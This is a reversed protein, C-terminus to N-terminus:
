VQLDGFSQMNLSLESRDDRRIRSGCTSCANLAESCYIALCVSCVYGRELPDSHCVCVAGMHASQNQKPRCVKLLGDAPAAMLFLLAQLLGPATQTMSFPINIGGTKQVLNMVASSPEDSGLSVVDVVGKDPVLAWGCNSLAVTQKSFDTFIRSTEFVIIRGSCGFRNLYCVAMSVAKGILAEGDLGNSKRANLLNELKKRAMFIEHFNGSILYECNEPFAAIIAFECAGSQFALSRILAICVDLVEGISFRTCNAWFEPSIDLVIVLPCSM